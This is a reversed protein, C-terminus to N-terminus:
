NLTRALLSRYTSVLDGRGGLMQFVKIMFKRADDDQFGRDRRVIELLHELGEEHKRASVLRQALQFRALHDNDDQKLAEQLADVPPMDKVIEQMEISVSLGKCIDSNRAAEGLSKSLELAEDLNDEAMLWEMLLLKPEDSEPVSQILQAVFRKAEDRHGQEYYQRAMDLKGSLSSGADVHRDIIEAIASESQVGMFRDVPRGQKFFFVTPLSRIGFQAALDQHRDADVKVLKVSGDYRMVLRELVPALQKCPGCWDAWFDVMVLKENSAEIVESVFTELTADTYNQAEMNM